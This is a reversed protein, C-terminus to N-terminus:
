RIDFEVRGLAGYDVMYHGPKGPHLGTLAGPIIIHDPAITYGHAIVFENITWLLRRWIDDESDAGPRAGIETGDHMVRVDLRDLDLGAPHRAEGTLLHSAAINTAILLRRLHDFNERLAALDTFAADPLEVAPYAACTAARLSATDAFPASRPECLSFGIEAEVLLSQFRERRVLPTGTLHGGAFLVGGVPARPIFGGKYGGIRDGAALRLAVFRQQIAYLEAEDLAPNIRVIDPFPRANAHAAHLVEAIYATDAQEAADAITACLLTLTCLILRYM